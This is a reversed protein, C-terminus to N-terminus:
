DRPGTLHRKLYSVFDPLSVFLRESTIRPEESVNQINIAANRRNRLVVTVVLAVGGATQISLLEHQQKPTVHLKRDFTQQDAVDTLKVEAFITHGDLVWICDPVGVSRLTAWKKAYGGAKVIELNLARQYHNETPM